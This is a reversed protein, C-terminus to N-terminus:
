SWTITSVFLGLDNELASQYARQLAAHSECIRRHVQEHVVPDDAVVGDLQGVDVAEIDTTSETIRALLRQLQSRDLWGSDARDFRLCQWYPSQADVFRTRQPPANAVVLQRNPLGCRVLEIDAAPWGLPNLAAFFFQSSPLTVLPGQLYDALVTLLFRGIQLPDEVGQRDLEAMSLLAENGHVELPSSRIEPWRQRCRRIAIRCRERLPGSDGRELPEILARIEIIYARDDFCSLLTATM